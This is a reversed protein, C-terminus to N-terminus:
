KIKIGYREIIEKALNIYAVSGACEIDHVIVPKGHSPAESVKVNRPIVTKYVKDQMFGRVDNEVQITLKNRIDYMTLLIGEIELQPNLTKKISRYTKILHSLGELAFFECQLPIFLSNSACMANITLMGLSPPCDIFVFDYTTNTHVLTQLKQKLIFQKNRKELLEVEAGALDMTAPVLYLNEVNTEYTCDDITTTEDILLNYVNKVRDQQEIGFGTSANGQPDIDIVLIKQGIASLATALNIVTTTKGVGGKQNVVSIIKM